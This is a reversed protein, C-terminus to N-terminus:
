WDYKLNAKEVQDARFRVQRGNAADLTIVGADVGALAGEWRKQGEVPERLQVRVKQGVSRAFHDVRRLKREIGPSSVELTYSQGPIVDEVDLVTGVQDSVLECDGHSVGGPKDIYIRLVRNRGGGALEIDWVQIGEREGARRAIEWIRDTLAEKATGPV